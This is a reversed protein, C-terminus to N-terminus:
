LCTTRLFQVFDGWKVTNMKRANDTERNMGKCDGDTYLSFLRRVSKCVRLRYVDEWSFFNYRMTKNFFKDAKLGIFVAIVWVEYKTIEVETKVSM